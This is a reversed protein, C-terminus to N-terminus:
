DLPQQNLPSLGLKKFLELDRLTATLFFDFLSYISQYLLYKLTGERRLLDEKGKLTANLLVFDVEEKAGYILLEPYFDYRCLILKKATVLQFFSQGKGLPFPFSTLLPMRIFRIKERDDRGLKKAINQIKKELSESAYFVEVRQNRELSVKILPFAQEFEGESSVEFAVDAKIDGPWGRSLPDKANQCEFDLRKRISSSLLPLLYATFPFFLWRLFMLVWQFKLLIKRNAESLPDSVM